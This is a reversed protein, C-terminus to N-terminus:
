LHLAIGILTGIVYKVSICCINWFNMHFPLYGRIAAAIKLFLYLLLSWLVQYWVIGHQLMRRYMDALALSMISVFPVEDFYFAEAYSFFIVNFYFSIWCYPFVCKGIIGWVLTEDQFYIFFECSQVGPLCVVWDFYPLPRSCVSRWPLCVAGWLCSFISLM